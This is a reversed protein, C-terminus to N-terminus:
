EMWIELNVISCLFGGAKGIYKEKIRTGTRIKQRFGEMETYRM